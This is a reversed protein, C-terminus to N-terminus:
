SVLFRLDLSEVARLRLQGHIARVDLAVRVIVAAVACRRQEGCWIDGGVIINFHSARAGPTRPTESTSRCAPSNLTPVTSDQSPKSSRRACQM